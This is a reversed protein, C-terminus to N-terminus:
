EASQNMSMDFMVYGDSREGLGVGDRKEIQMLMLM